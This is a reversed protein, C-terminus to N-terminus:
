FINYDIKNGKVEELYYIYCLKFLDVRNNEFIEKFRLDIM